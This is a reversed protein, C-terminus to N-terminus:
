LNSHHKDNWVQMYLLSDPKDCTWPLCENIITYILSYCHANKGDNIDTSAKCVTRMHQTSLTGRKKTNAVSIELNKWDFM